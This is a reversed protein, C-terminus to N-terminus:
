LGSSKLSDDVEKVRLARRWDSLMVSPRREGGVLRQLLGPRKAGVFFRGEAPTTVVSINQVWSMPLKHQRVKTYLYGYLDFIRQTDLEMAENTERMDRGRFPRFIPLVPMVRRGLLADIGACTSEPAELGVILHCIVAGAPLVTAAYELADLFRQRGIHRSPGPCIQDFRSPDFIELNYSLSDVGMAYTRDIWANHEPPLADMAVLIDFHKKIARIYPELARVGGDSGTLHGVSLYVMDIRTTDRVIRIAELIDDVPVWDATTRTTLSCFHCQDNTGVFSCQAIPSLALYSGHVTGLRALPLGTSTTRTYFAAPPVVQVCVPQITENQQGDSPQWHLWCKADSRRLLYPSPQIFQNSLPATVWTGGPLILDIDTANGFMNRAHASMGLTTTRGSPAPIEAPELCDQEVRLGRRMLELKLFGPNALITSPSCTAGDSFIGPPIVAMGASETVIYPKLMM